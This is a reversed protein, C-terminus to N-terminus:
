STNEHNYEGDSFYVHGTRPGVDLDDAFRIPSSTGDSSKIRSAILEVRPREADLDPVRILGLLSDAIYVEGNSTIKGGLPRGVGLDVVVTCRATINYPNSPDPTQFDDLRILNAEETLAYLTGDRPDVLATEPGKLLAEGGPPM